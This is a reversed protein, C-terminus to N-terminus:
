FSGLLPQDFRFLVENLEFIDYMHHVLFYEVILPEIEERLMPVDLAYSVMQFFSMHVGHGHKTVNGLAIECPIKTLYDEIDECPSIKLAIGERGKRGISELCEIWADSMTKEIPEIDIGKEGVLLIHLHPHWGNSLDDMGRMIELVSVRRGNFYKKMIRRITGNRWFRGRCYDMEKLM